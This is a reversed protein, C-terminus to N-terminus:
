FVEFCWVEIVNELAASADADKILTNDIVKLQATIDDDNCAHLANM